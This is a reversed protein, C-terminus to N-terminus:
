KSDVVRLPAAPDDHDPVTVGSAPRV